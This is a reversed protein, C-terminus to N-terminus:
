FSGLVQKEYLMKYIHYSNRVKTIYERTESYLVATPFGNKSAGINSMSWKKVNGSGGNYSALAKDIDGSFTNLLSKLYYASFRINVEPELLEEQKFETKLKSAIFKGTEPMIQMLGLAGVRSVADQKYYSEERMLAWLLYPDINFESAAKKVHEDYPKQYALEYGHRLPQEKLAKMGWKAAQYYDGRSLYWDGLALKGSTDANNEGIAMEVQAMLSRGSMKYADVRDLFEPKSYALDALTDWSPEKNLRMM